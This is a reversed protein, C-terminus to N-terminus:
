ASNKLNLVKRTAGTRGGKAELSWMWENNRHKASKENEFVANQSVAFREGVDPATADDPLDVDAERDDWGLRLEEADVDVVFLADVVDLNWMSSMLVRKGGLSHLLAVNTNRETEQSHGTMWNCFFQLHTLISGLAKWIHPLVAEAWFLTKM